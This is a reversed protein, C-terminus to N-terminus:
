GLPRVYGRVVAAICAGVEAGVCVGVAAPAMAPFGKVPGYHDGGRELGRGLRTISHVLPHFRSGLCPQQARRCTAGPHLCVGEAPECGQPLLFTGCGPIRGRWPAPSLIQSGQSHQHPCATHCCGLPLLGPCTWLMALLVFLRMRPTLHSHGPATLPAVRTEWAPPQVSVNRASFSGGGNVGARESGFCAVLCKEM